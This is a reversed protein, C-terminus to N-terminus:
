AENDILMLTYKGQTIKLANSDSADLKMSMIAMASLTVESFFEDKSMNNLKAFDRWIDSM